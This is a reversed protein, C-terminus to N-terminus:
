FHWYRRINYLFCIRYYTRYQKGPRKPYSLMNTWIKPVQALLNNFIILQFQWLPMNGCISVRLWIVTSNAKIPATSLLVESQRHVCAQMALCLDPVIISGGLCCAASTADVTDLGCWSDSIFGAIKWLARFRSGTWLQQKTKDPNLKLRDASM